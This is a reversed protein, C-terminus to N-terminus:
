PDSSFGKFWTKVVPLAKKSDEATYYKCIESIVYLSFYSFM